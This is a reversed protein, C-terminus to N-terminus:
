IENYACVYEEDASLEVTIAAELYGNVIYWVWWITSPKFADVADRSYCM